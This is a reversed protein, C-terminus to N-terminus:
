PGVGDRVALVSGRIKSIVSLVVSRVAGELDANDIIPLDYYDAETLVYDQIAAIEDFHDLYRRASRRSAEGRATFRSRYADEDLTAAVVFVLHAKDRYRDLQVLGPLLNVGELVLHTNEEIARDMLAHVGVGIKTAQERYGAIIPEVGGEPGAQLIEHADYTSCHIEPMLDASFMLRMIQRISDTGIVHSIELRRAAEVAISTKGVGTSGGVLLFVPHGADLARRWTRYREAAGRGRATEITEGVLVRLDGRDIEGVEERHLRSELERAVDHADSPELGAGQLSIALVGKSFPVSRKGPGRVKPPGVPSPLPVSELAFNGELQEDVLARLEELQVRGREQLGDRVKTAAALAVDFPIGRAVLSQVLIGRMFPRPGEPGLVLLKPEAM